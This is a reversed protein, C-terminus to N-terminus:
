FPVRVPNLGDVFDSDKFVDFVAAYALLQMHFLRSM